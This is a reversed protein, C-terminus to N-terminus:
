LTWNEVMVMKAKGLGLEQKVRSFVLLKAILYGFPKRDGFMMGCQMTQSKAAGITKAWELITRELGSAHLEYKVLADRMKEFVRPTGFFFNPQVQKLTAVLRDGQLADKPAFYTCGGIAM